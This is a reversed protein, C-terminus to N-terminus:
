TIQLSGTAGMLLDVVDPVGLAVAGVMLIIAATHGRLLANLAMTFAVTVKNPDNKGDSVTAVFDATQM